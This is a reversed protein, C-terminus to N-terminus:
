LASTYHKSPAQIAALQLPSLNRLDPSRAVWFTPIQPAFAPYRSSSHKQPINLCFAPHNTVIPVPSRFYTNVLGRESCLQLFEMKRIKTSLRARAYMVDGLMVDALMVDDLMVDGLMVDGLVVDGLVVDGLVVDGLVVDGLVVDGLVVDGLVVDDVLCYM